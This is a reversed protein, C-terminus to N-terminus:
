SAPCQLWWVWRNEDQDPGQLSPWCEVVQLGANEALQRIEEPQYLRVDEHWQRSEGNPLTITVDKIVRPGELRREEIVHMGNLTRESRPVLNARVTDSNPLDLMLWGGPALLSALGPLVQANM